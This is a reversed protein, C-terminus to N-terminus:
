KKKLDEREEREAQQSLSLCEAIVILCLIKFIV